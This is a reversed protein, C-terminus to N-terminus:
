RVHVTTTLAYRGANANEIDASSGGTSSFQKECYKHRWHQGACHQVLDYRPADGFSNILPSVVYRRPFFSDSGMTGGNRFQCKSFNDLLSFEELVRSLDGIDDCYDGADICCRFCNRTAYAM